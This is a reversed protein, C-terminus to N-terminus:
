EQNFFRDLAQRRRRPKANVLKDRMELSQTDLTMHDLRSWGFIPELPLVACAQDPSPRPEM